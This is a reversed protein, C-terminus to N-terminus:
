LLQRGRSLTPTFRGIIDVNTSRKASICPIFVQHPAYNIMDEYSRLHRDLENKVAPNDEIDRIPKSGYQVFDPVHVVVYSAEKLVVAM